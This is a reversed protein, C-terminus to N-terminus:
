DAARTMTLDMPTGSQTFKGVWSRAGGDWNASYEARLAAITMAFTEGENAVTDAPILMGPAQSPSELTASLKGAGDKTVIVVIPLDQGPAKVVGTWKGVADQALAPAALAAAVLAGAIIRRIARM